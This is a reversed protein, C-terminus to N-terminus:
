GWSVAIPFNVTGSLPVLISQWANIHERFGTNQLYMYVPHPCLGLSLLLVTEQPPLIYGVLGGVSAFAEQQSVDQEKTRPSNGGWALPLLFPQGAQLPQDTCGAGAGTCALPEWLEQLCKSLWQRGPFLPPVFSKLIFSHHGPM